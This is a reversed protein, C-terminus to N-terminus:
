VATMVNNGLQRLAVRLIKGSENRPLDGAHYTIRRPCKYPAILGKVHQMLEATLAETGDVGSRLVVHACILRGDRDDSEGVVCCESVDPHLLLAQEVEAPSITYGSSIIMEDARAQYFLYGEDDLYAADGTLNWGRKVYQRQRPDNLYRCGTPGQVALNGVQYPPLRRGNDDLIALRYGPVAKGIAGEKSPGDDTSAFIHLMETSGIGDILRIGTRWHWADRTVSPLAEGASVCKRLSSVDYDDIQELMTRYATPVSFLISVRHEAIATLLSSPNAKPLLVVSAGVSVPFLLLAGLGFTFGLPSSGCFVDDATPKLLHEPFCRCIAMVDRHFHITAKPKGTTGSTFAIMCPDYARTAVAKFRDSYERVWRDPLGPGDTEYFRVYRINRQTDLAIELASSLAAECFVHSVKARDVIISLKGARLLPMTMVAVGGAKVVGFWAAALIPHNTGHLLVRNGQMFGGDRVLMNAIRNSADRLARYTWTAGSGTTIAVRDGWNREDVAADLLAASCNLNGPFRLNPTEFIFQPWDEIVPLNALCFDDMEMVM